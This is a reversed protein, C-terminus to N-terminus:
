PLGGLGSYVRRSKDDEEGRGGGGERERKGRAHERKQRICADDTRERAACNWPLSRPRPTLSSPGGLPDITDRYVCYKIVAHLQRNNRPAAQGRRAM